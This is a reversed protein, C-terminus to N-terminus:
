SISESCFYERYNAFAVGCVCVCVRILWNSIGNVQAKNFKLEVAGCRWEYFVRGLGYLYQDLKQYDAVAISTSYSPESAPSFGDSNTSHWVAVLVPEFRRLQQGYSLLLSFSSFSRVMIVVIDDRACTPLLLVILIGKHIASYPIHSPWIALSNKKQGVHRAVSLSLPRIGCDSAWYQLMIHAAWCKCVVSTFTAFDIKPM